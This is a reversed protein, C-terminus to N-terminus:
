EEKKNKSHHECETFTCVKDCDKCLDWDLESSLKSKRYKKAGSYNPALVIREQLYQTSYQKPIPLQVTNINSNNLLKKRVSVVLRTENEYSWAYDKKLFVTKNFKDFDVDNCNETSHKISYNIDTEKKKGYYLVDWFDINYDEPPVEISEQFKDGIFYGLKIPPKNQSYSNFISKTLNILAGNKKTGGYLMWLAINESRSFSFCLGFNKVDLSDNNFLKRDNKDNWHQGDSLYLFRQTAIAEIREDSSYFKFSNHNRNKLYEVLKDNALANKLTEEM